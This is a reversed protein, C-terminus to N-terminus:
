QYQLSSYCAYIEDLNLHILLIVLFFSVKRFILFLGIKPANVEKKIQVYLNEEIIKNSKILITRCERMM